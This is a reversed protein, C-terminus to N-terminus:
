AGSPLNARESVEGDLIAEVSIWGVLTTEADTNVCGDPEKMCRISLLTLVWLKARKEKATTAQKLRGQEWKEDEVTWVPRRNFAALADASVYM